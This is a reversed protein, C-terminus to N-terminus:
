VELGGIRLHRLEPYADTCTVIRFKKASVKYYDVFSKMDEKAEEYTLGGSMFDWGSKKLREITFIRHEKVKKLTEKSVKNM